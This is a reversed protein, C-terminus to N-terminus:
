EDVFILATLCVNIPIRTRRGSFRLAVEGESTPHDLDIAGSKLPLQLITVQLHCNSTEACDSGHTGGSLPTISTAIVVAVIRPTRSDNV